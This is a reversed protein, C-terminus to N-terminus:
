GHEDRDADADQDEAAQAAGVATAFIFVLEKAPFRGSRLDSKRWIQEM